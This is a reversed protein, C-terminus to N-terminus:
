LSTNVWDPCKNEEEYSANRCFATVVGMPHTDPSGSGQTRQEYVEVFQKVGRPGKFYMGYLYRGNRQKLGHSNNYIVVLMPEEYLNHDVFAHTYGFGRPNAKGVRIWVAHGRDANDKMIDMCSWAAHAGNYTTGRPCSTQPTPPDTTPPVMDTTADTDDAATSTNVEALDAADDDSM